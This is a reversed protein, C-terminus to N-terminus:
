KSGNVAAIFMVEYMINDLGTTQDVVIKTFTYGTASFIPSPGQDQTVVARLLKPTSDQTKSCQPPLLHSQLTYTGNGFWVNLLVNSILVMLPRFLSYQTYMCYMHKIQPIDDIFCPSIAEKHVSFTQVM